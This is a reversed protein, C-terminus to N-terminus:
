GWYGPHITWLDSVLDPNNAVAFPMYFYGKDGWKEGWSNQIILHKKGMDYGLCLVEHGGLLLEYDKPVPMIGTKAVKPSEFSDYVAFSVLVPWPTKDGLVSLCDALGALRHYGGLKYKLANSKQAETPMKIAGAVYPELAAECIGEISLSQCITRPMAGDDEPFNGERVLENVYLFQPALIPEQNKYSRWEWEVLSAGAHGTCSGENGQDKIPGAFKRLDVVSPLMAARKRIPLMQDRYDALDRKAGYKRSM